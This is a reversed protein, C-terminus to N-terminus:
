ARSCYLINSYDLGGSARPSTGCQCYNKEQTQLSSWKCLDKKLQGRRNFHFAIPKYKSVTQLGGTEPVLRVFTLDSLAVTNNLLQCLAQVPLKM